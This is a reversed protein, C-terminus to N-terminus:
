NGNPWLPRIRVGGTGIVVQNDLLPPRAQAQPQVIRALAADASQAATVPVDADRGAPYVPARGALTGRRAASSNPADPTTVAVPRPSPSAPASGTGFPNPVMDVSGSASGAGGRDWPLKLTPDDRVDKLARDLAAQALNRRAKYRDTNLGPRNRAAQYLAEAEAVKQQAQQIQEQKKAVKALQESANYFTGDKYQKALEDVTNDNPEVSYGGAFGPTRRAVFGGGQAAQELMAAAMAPKAGSKRSLENISNLLVERRMGKFTGELLKDTLQGAPTDDAELQSYNKALGGMSSRNKWSEIQRNVDEVSTANKRTNTEGELWSDVNGPGANYAALAKDMSGYKVRLEKLYARAAQRNAEPNDITGKIGYRQKIEEFTAPMLQYRGQAGKPSVADDRNSSEVSALAPMVQDLEDEISGSLPGAKSLVKYNHDRTEKFPISASFDSGYSSGSTSTGTGVTAKAIAASGSGSPTTGAGVSSVQLPGSLGPYLKSAEAAVLTRANPSAGKWEDSNFFDRVDEASGSLRMKEMLPIAEQKARDDRSAIDYDLQASRNRISAGENSLGKGTNDLRMADLRLPNAVENFAMDQRSRDNNLQAGEIRLPDLQRSTELGQQAVADSLLRGARTDLANIAKTGVLSRDIGDFLAGSAQAERLKQADTFDLSRSLVANAAQEERWDQFKGLGDSLGSFARDLAQAAIQNGQMTGRFDPADVNRWTLTNAM